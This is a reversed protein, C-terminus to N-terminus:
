AKDLYNAIDNVFQRDINLKLRLYQALKDWISRFLNYSSVRTTVVSGWTIITEQMLRITM